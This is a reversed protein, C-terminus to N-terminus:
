EIDQSPISLDYDIDHWVSNCGGGWGYASM